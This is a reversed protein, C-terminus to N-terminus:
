RRYDGQLPEFSRPEIRPSNIHDNLGQIIENIDKRLWHYEFSIRAKPDAQSEANKILPELAKLERVLEALATKEGEADAYSLSTVSIFAFFSSALFTKIKM